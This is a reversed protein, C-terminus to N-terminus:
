QAAKIHAYIADFLRAVYEGYGANAQDDKKLLGNNICAIMIEQALKKDEQVAM